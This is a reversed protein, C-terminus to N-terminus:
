LMKLNVSDAPKESHQIRRLIQLCPELALQRAQICVQHSTREDPTNGATELINQFKRVM